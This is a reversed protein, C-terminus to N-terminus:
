KVKGIYVDNSNIWKSKVLCRTQYFALHTRFSHPYINLGSGKGKVYNLAPSSLLSCGQTSTWITNSDTYFFAIM